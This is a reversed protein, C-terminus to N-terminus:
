DFKFYYTDNNYVDFKAGNTMEVFIHHNDDFVDDAMAPIAIAPVLFLVALICITMRGIKGPKMKQTMEKVENRVPFRPRSSGTIHEGEM